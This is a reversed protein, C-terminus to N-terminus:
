ERSAEDLDAWGWKQQVVPGKMLYLAPNSRAATKIATADTTFVRDVIIDNKILFSEAESRQSSVLYLKNKGSVKLLFLKLDNVWEKTYLTPFELFFLYYLENKNLITETSDVGNQDNLKFDNILPINNKGKKILQQSRELFVWSSDPLAEATFEKKEGNKEYIFSYEYKDAVAEAPIKRLELINNGKKFPLCDIIPLHKLVYFQLALTLIVAMLIYILLILPKNLPLIYEKKIILLIVLLLLIIDKVFTQLPTIPICDGFCGCAQIKGSFLVYSTLFTFLLMLLFLLWTTIKKQWGALLAVGLVVEMTIMIISFVLAHDGLSDMMSKLIGERAFVEFFEQMKYALGRPDIAKVLGSFIFLVGTVIRAITVLLKLKNTRSM